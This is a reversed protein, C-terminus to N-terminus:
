VSEPRSMFKALHREFPTEAPNFTPSEYALSADFAPDRQQLYDTSSLRAPLDPAIWERDDHPLSTQWFLASATARLGSHPLVIDTNEGYHNPRAGTPEGVFLARTRQELDIALNMAASFTGRGIIVFLHGWRNVADSRILGDVLPWNLTMDGGHNRRVDLIFREVGRNTVVDFARGFFTALPEDAHDRVTNYAMYLTRTEPLHEFWNEDPRRLWLPDAVRLRFRADILDQDRCHNAPLDLSLREGDQREIQWIARDTTSILGLAHLVEPIVLLDPAQSWVGMENDRSILPRVLDWVELIPVDGIAIVRAGAAVMHDPAAAQIFLGDGFRYLQIPFRAFDPVDTLRLVTHGDGIMALLRALEVVGGHNPMSGLRGRLSRVAARFGDSSVAHYLDQHGRQAADVLADLDERWQGATLDRWM